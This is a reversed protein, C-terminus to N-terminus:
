ASNVGSYEKRLSAEIEQAKRFEEEASGVSKDHDFRKLMEVTAKDVREEDEEGFEEFVSRFEEM